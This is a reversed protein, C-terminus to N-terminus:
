AFLVANRERIAQEAKETTICLTPNVNGTRDEYMFKGTMGRGTFTNIADKKSTAIVAYIRKSNEGSFIFTKTVRKIEM